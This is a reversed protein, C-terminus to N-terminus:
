FLNKLYNYWLVDRYYHSIRLAKGRLGARIAETSSMTTTGIQSFTSRYTNSVLARRKILVYGLITPLMVIM